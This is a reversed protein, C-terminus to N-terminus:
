GHGLEMGTIYNKEPNVWLPMTIPAAGLKQKLLGLILLNETVTVKDQEIYFGEEETKIPYWLSIVKDSSQEINSTELGDDLRPLKYDRNLVDRSAQVGLAVPTGLQISLDKAKNVAEMMQERKTYGDSADPRIRQLYDLAVLKIKYKNDTASFQVYELAELVDTMTMRPRSKKALMSRQNSHGIIWLPTVIRTAYSKMVNDWEYNQEGRVLTSISISADASIWKLTDEEVSDEWTVKVAIENDNCQAVASRLLWNMFGSKYWSTYGMVVMLEAPRLPLLVNDLPKIGTKVGANKNKKLDELADIALKAAEQPSFVLEQTM